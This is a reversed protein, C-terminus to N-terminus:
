YNSSHGSDPRMELEDKSARQGLCSTGYLCALHASLSARCRPQFTGVSGPGVQTPQLESVRHTRRLGLVSLLIDPHSRGAVGPPEPPDADPPLHSAGTGCALRVRGTGEPGPCAWSKRQATTMLPTVQEPGLPLQPGHLLSHTQFPWKCVQSGMRHPTLSGMTGTWMPCTPASFKAESGGPQFHTHAVQVQTHQDAGKLGPPNSHRSTEWRVCHRTNRSSLSLSLCVEVCIHGRGKGQHASGPSGPTHPAAGPVECPSRPDPSM